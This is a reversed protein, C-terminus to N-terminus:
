TLATGNPVGVPFVSVSLVGASALHLNRPCLFSAFDYLEFPFITSIPVRVAEVPRLELVGASPLHLTEAPPLGTPAPPPDVSIVNLLALLAPSPEDGRGGKTPSLPKRYRDPYFLDHAPALHGQGGTM